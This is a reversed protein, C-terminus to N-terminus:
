LKINGNEALIDIDGSIANVFIAIKEPNVDEGSQIQTVGPSVLTTYGPRTGDQDMAYYHRGDLAVVKFSSRVDKELASVVLFACSADQTGLRKDDM